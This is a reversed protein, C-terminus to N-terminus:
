QCLLQAGVESQGKSCLQGTIPCGEERVEEKKREREGEADTAGKERNEEEGTEKGEEGRSRGERKGEQWGEKATGQGERRGRRGRGRKGM